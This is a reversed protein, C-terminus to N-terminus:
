LAPSNWTGAMGREVAEFLAAAVPVPSPAPPVANSSAPSLALTPRAPGSTASPATGAVGGARARRQEEAWALAAAMAPLDAVVAWGAASTLTRPSHLLAERVAAPGGVVSARDLLSALVVMEARQQSSAGPVGGSAARAAGDAFRRAVTAASLGANDEGRADAGHVLLAAAASLIGVTSTHDAVSM